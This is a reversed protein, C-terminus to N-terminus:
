HGKAKKSVKNTDSLCSHYWRSVTFEENDHKNEFTSHAPSFCIMLIM